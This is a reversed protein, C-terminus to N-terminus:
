EEKQLEFTANDECEMCVGLPEDMTIEDIHLDYLPPKYCCKSLYEIM